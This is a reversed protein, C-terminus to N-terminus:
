YRGKINFTHNSNLEKVAIPSKQRCYLSDDCLKGLLVGDQTLSPALKDLRPGHKDSGTGLKPWSVLSDPYNTDHNNNILVTPAKNNNFVTILSTTVTTSLSWM